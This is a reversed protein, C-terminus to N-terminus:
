PIKQAAPPGISDNEILYESHTPVKDVSFQEEKWIKGLQEFRPYIIIWQIVWNIKITSIVICLSEDM